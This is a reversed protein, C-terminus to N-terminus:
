DTTLARFNVQSGQSHSDIVNSSEGDPVSTAAQRPSLSDTAHTLVNADDVTTTPVDIMTDPM